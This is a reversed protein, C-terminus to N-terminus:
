HEINQMIDRIKVSKRIQNNFWHKNLFTLQVIKNTKSLINYKIDELNKGEMDVGDICLLVDGYNMIIRKEELVSTENEDRGYDQFSIFYNEVYPQQTTAFLLSCGTDHVQLFVDYSDFYTNVDNILHYPSFVSTSSKHTNLRSKM